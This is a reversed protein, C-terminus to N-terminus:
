RGSQLDRAVDDLAKALDVRPAYGFDRRAADISFWHSKALETAVFRTMPPEGKLGFTGWVWECVGGIRTAAQASVKKEIPPVGVRRLLDNIWDWLVVPEGDSLFYARGGCTGHNLADFALLHAAAANDVHTLDVRNGGEGVIRLRGTKAKAVVRPVLHPDGVGWILHPRLACIKVGAKGHAALLEGEAIAKTKAYPSLGNNPNLPLSEDAGEFAEGSFTVSPTSTYVLREVGHQQCAKLVNRAGTVNAAFFDEERGWVGAKAAVHFVADCGAVANAVAAEDALDGQIVEVGRAANEPQPSRGYGRVEYGRELLLGVIRSGLFGGSGTVLIKM